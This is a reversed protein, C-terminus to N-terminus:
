EPPPVKQLEKGYFTGKIHEGDQFDIIRYINFPTRKIVKFIQFIKETFYFTTKEFKERIRLLRVYDGERLTIKRNKGNFKPYLKLRVLYANSPTVKSPAYGHSSHITDNYNKAINKYVNVWKKTNNATIYKMIRGRFTRFFREVISAKIERNQSLWLGIGRTQFYKKISANHFETGLDSQFSGVAPLENLIKIVNKSVEAANKTKLKEVWVKRSFVCIVGLIYRYGNNHSKLFNLDLLDAQVQFYLKTQVIPNRKPAIPNKWVMPTKQSAYWKKVNKLKADPIVKKVAAYINKFNSYATPNKVNYYLDHLKRDLASAAKAM